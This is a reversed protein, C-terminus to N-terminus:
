DLADMVLFSDLNREPVILQVGTNEVDCTRVLCAQEPDFISIRLRSGALPSTDIRLTQRVPTYAMIYSGQSCRAVSVRSASDTNHAVVTDGGFFSTRSPPVPKLLHQAAIRTSYSRELLAKAPLALHSSGPADLAEDWTPLDERFCRHIRDGKRHLQRISECGYTFGAAGALVTRYFSKRVDYDNFVPMPSAHGSAYLFTNPAIGEFNPEIDLCPKPPEQYFLRDIALYGPTNFEYHGSQIANFDLWPESHFMESSTLPHFGMLRDGSGGSRIGEAMSRLIGIHEAHQVPSDGGLVWIVNRCQALSDSVQRGYRRAKDPDFIVPGASNSQECWKDGWTPLLAAMLGYEGAIAIVDAVWAMWQPNLRAAHLDEDRAFPRVGHVNPSNPKFLDRFIVTQIVTFGKGARDEFLRRVGAEDLKNFLLWAVDALWFFPSGDERQFFHGGPAVAVSTPCSVAM